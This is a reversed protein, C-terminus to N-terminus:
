EHDNGAEPACSVKVQAPRFVEGNWEYGSRFVELVTGEPVERSEARDVANM